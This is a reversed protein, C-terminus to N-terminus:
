HIAIGDVLLRQIAIALGQQEDPNPNSLFRLACVLIMGVVAHGTSQCDLDKRFYGLKVGNIMYAAVLQGGWDILNMLRKTMDADISTAELLILRAIAPNATLVDSLRNAIRACQEKYAELSTVADPANEAELTAIIKTAIDDIVHELIDRKNTFHRYFTGHGIGLRKAIDSIATQHYGREAFEIFAAQLIDSRLQQRNREARSLSSDDNM